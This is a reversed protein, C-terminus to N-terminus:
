WDKRHVTFRYNRIKLKFRLSDVTKNQVMIIQELSDSVVRCEAEKIMWQIHKRQEKRWKVECETVELSLNHRVSGCGVFFTLCILFFAPAGLYRSM